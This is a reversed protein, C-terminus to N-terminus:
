RCDIIQGTMVPREDKNRKAYYEPIKEEEYKQIENRVSVYNEKKNDRLYPEAMKLAIYKHFLSPIGPKKTTDAATFYVADRQYSVRLGGVSNYDPAPYLIISNELKDYYQPTGDTEYLTDLPQNVDNRDIPQLEIFDGNADKCEVKLVKLMSVDLSYDNQTIVLDTSGVPLDTYNTDGFSWRDDSSLAIGAYDSLASNGRRAKDSLPYSTTNTKCVADVEQCLGLGTTADNFALGM